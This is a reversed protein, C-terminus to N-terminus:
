RICNFINIYLKYWWITLMNGNRVRKGVYKEKSKKSKEKELYSAISKFKPVQHKSWCLEWGAVRSQRMIKLQNLQPVEM